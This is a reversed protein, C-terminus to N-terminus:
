MITTIDNEYIVASFDELAKNVATFESDTLEKNFLISIATQGLCNVFGNGYALGQGAFCSVAMKNVSINKNATIQAASYQKDTVLVGDHMYKLTATGTKSASASAIVINRGVPKTSVVPLVNIDSSGSTIFSYSSWLISATALPQTNASKSFCLAAITAPATTLGTDVYMGSPYPSSPTLESRVFYSGYKGVHFGLHVAADYNSNVDRWSDKCAEEATGALFPILLCQISNELGATKIDAILHAFATRASSSVQKTYKAMIATATEDEFPIEIRGISNASYDAHKNVIIM